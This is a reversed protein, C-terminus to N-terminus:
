ARETRRRSAIMCIGAFIATWAIVNAAMLWGSDQVVEGTTSVVAGELLPWRALSVAGYMPTFKAFTLLGGSLPIFVNGLFALVVLMGSAASVAAESRFLLAAALGYFAFPVSAALTMGFAAAWHGVTDLRAGTLAGVTFVAAIALFAMALAVLVKGLFYGGSTLTTLSLQRGWGKMREVAASGAIATTATAAGYVAMSIMNYAAVNGNGAPQDAYDTIAGFMVYLATPLLVIFFTSEIMRVNRHFDRVAFAPVKALGSTTRPANRTAAAATQATM